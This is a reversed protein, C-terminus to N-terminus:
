SATSQDHRTGGRDGGAHQRFLRRFHNKMRYERFWVQPATLGVAAATEAATRGEVWRLYLVRYSCESVQSRLEGLVFWVAERQRRREYAAAPDTETGPLDAQQRATLNHTPRCSRRRRLDIAKGRTIRNLWTLLRGRRPDYRFAPLKKVVEVWVQQVCDDHSDRPVQCAVTLRGILPNYIRFFEEWAATLGGDPDRGRSRCELYRQAQQLLELDIDGEGLATPVPASKHM